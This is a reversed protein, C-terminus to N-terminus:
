YKQKWTKVGGHVFSFPRVYGGLAELKEIVNYRTNGPCFLFMFGGGGAGSVKGGTAGAEMALDITKQIKTNSIGKAMAKKAEWGRNLIEGVERMDGQVLCDKMEIAQRKLKHMAEVSSHKDSQVNKIQENIIDSSKRSSNGFYLVMNHQLEQFVKKKVNIPNVVVHEDAYFEMFNLGGYTAAYQDQKGGSIMLDKREIDYAARAIDLTSLPLGYFQSLVSVLAVTCTSSSGLGSGVPAESHITIEM